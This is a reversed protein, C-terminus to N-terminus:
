RNGERDGRPGPKRAGTAQTIHLMMAFKAEADPPWSWAVEGDADAVNTQRPL